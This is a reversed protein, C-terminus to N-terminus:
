SERKRYFAIVKSISKNDDDHAAMSTARWQEALSGSYNSSSRKRAALTAGSEKLFRLRLLSHFPILLFMSVLRTLSKLNRYSIRALFGYQVIQYKQSTLVM